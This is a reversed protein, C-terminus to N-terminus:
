TPQNDSSELLPDWGKPLEVNGLEPASAEPSVQYARLQYVYALVQAVARYLPAPVDEELEGHRFLARALPPIEVIPVKNDQALERIRLAIEDAGKAVLRPANMRGEEYKLAIAYHTPNTIVVDAKPVAQMMRKRSIERQQKRIRSKLQPDGSSEKQERRLDELNMRLRRVYLWWQLPVDAAGILFMAGSLILMDHLMLQGLSHLAIPMPVLPLNLWADKANWVLYSGVSGLLITKFLAKLLESLGHTSIIRKIGSLISLRSLKPELAQPSFIFGGLTMSGIVGAVMGAILIPSIALLADSFLDSFNLLLVNQDVATNLENFSHKLWTLCSTLLHTATLGFAAVCAFTAAATSIERSRAIDGEERAKQLRQESAPLDKDQSQESEDAM